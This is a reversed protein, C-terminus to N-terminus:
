YISTTYASFISTLTKHFDVHTKGCIVVGECSHKKHKIRMDAYGCIRTDSYGRKRGFGLINPILVRHRLLDVHCFCINYDLDIGCKQLSAVNQFNFYKSILETCVNPM